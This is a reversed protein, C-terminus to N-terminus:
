TNKAALGILAAEAARRVGDVPDMQARVLASESSQDALRGLAEAAAQRLVYDADSLLSMLLRVALKQRKVASHDAEFTPPLDEPQITGLSVLLQGVLYRVEPDRDNLAAKLEEAAARAEPSSGWDEDIRSLAAAAIRRVSSNSDKLTLVLPGIARRDGLAGLAMAVAERVDSDKDHLTATLPELAEKDKQRGLTEAAARRVDWVPDKLL